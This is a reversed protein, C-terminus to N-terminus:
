YGYIVPKGKRMDLHVFRPLDGRQSIGIGTFGLALAQRVIEHATSSDCAIDAALGLSHQGPAAKKAEEPHTRDRYGSTVRFPFGCANRLQQLKSMFEPQMDNRGTHRCDFEAKSFNPYASWDPIM